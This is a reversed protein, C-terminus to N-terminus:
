KEIDERFARLKKAVEGPPLPAPNQELWAGLVYVIERTISRKNHKAWRRFGRRIDEPLRVSTPYETPM